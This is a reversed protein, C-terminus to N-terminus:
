LHTLSGLFLVKRQWFIPSGQSQLLPHTAKYTSFFTPIVENNEPKRYYLLVLICM